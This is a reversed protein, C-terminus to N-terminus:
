LILTKQIVCGLIQKNNGQGDIEFITKPFYAVKIEKNEIFIFDEVQLYNILINFKTDDYLTIYSTM